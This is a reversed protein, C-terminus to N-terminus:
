RALRVTCLARLSFVAKYKMSQLMIIVSDQNNSKPIAHRSYNASTSSALPNGLSNFELGREANANNPDKPEQKIIVLYVICFVTINLATPPATKFYPLRTGTITM